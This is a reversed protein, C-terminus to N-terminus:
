AITYISSTVLVIQYSILLEAVDNGFTGSSSSSSHQIFDMIFKHDQDAQALGVYNQPM